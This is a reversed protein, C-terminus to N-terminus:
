LLARRRFAVALLQHSQAFRSPREAPVGRYNGRRNFSLNRKRADICIFTLGGGGQKTWAGNVQQFDVYEPGDCPDSSVSYQCYRILGEESRFWAPKHSRLSSKAPGSGDKAMLGLLQDAEPPPATLRVWSEVTNCQENVTAARKTACAVLFLLIVGCLMLSHSSRARMTM